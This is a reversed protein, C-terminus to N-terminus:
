RAIGGGGPVVPATRCFGTVLRAAFINASTLVKTAVILDEIRCLEIDVEGAGSFRLSLYRQGQPAGSSPRLPVAFEYWDRNLPVAGILGLDVKLHEDDGKFM